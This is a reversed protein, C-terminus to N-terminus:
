WAGADAIIRQPTQWPAFGPVGTAPDWDFELYAFPREGIAPSPSPISGFFPTEPAAIAEGDRPGLLGLWAALFAAGMLAVIMAASPLSWSILPSYPDRAITDAHRPTM